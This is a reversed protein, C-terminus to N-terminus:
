VPSGRPLSAAAPKTPQPRPRLRRLAKKKRAELRKIFEDSTTHDGRQAASVVLLDRVRTAAEPPWTEAIRLYAGRFRPDALHQEWLDADANFAAAIFFDWVRDHRFQIRQEDGTSGRVSRPVLLRRDLLCPLEAAFEEAKFWNRDELRMTVAHRGFRLLPFPQGAVDRYGPEGPTGEGAMRFAEDILRTASPSLGQALLDAALTLDFPNSLVQRATGRDEDTPVDDLNQRLFAEVAAAYDAQLRGARDAGVPRSLLFERAQERSLPLLDLTRAGPPPDWEIPQTGILVDGKSMTAAFGAIKERTAASVENLGDVIVTLSGTHVLSRVFGAEQIDHIKRAVAVDVGEACERAGLFAVPRAAHAAYWRLASTKGLGADGRLVVTGRLGQLLKGLPAPAGGALRAQGEGFFGLKSLEDLRAPALLDARFSALLRRRLPALRIAAAARVVPQAHRAAEPELFLRGAGHAVLPLRVPLRGLVAGLGYRVLHAM